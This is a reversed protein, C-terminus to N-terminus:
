KGKFVPERKELFARTSEQFDETGHLRNRSLLELQLHNSLDNSMGLHLLRKSARIGLPPLKAISSAMEYTVKALEDAPVFENVLGIEKAEKAYIRRSTFIMESAKLNGVRRPLIYTMGYAPSTGRRTFGVMFSAAESAIVIDCWLTMGFGAGVAIGNVMAITPKRVNMLEAGPYEDMRAIADESAWNAVKALGAGQSSGPLSRVDGGSCFARGAGTIVVVRTEDDEELFRYADKLEEGMQGGLANLKEPRNLTITAINEKKELIIDEYGM